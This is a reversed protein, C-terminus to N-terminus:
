KIERIKEALNPHGIKNIRDALDELASYIHQNFRHYAHYMSSKGLMEHDNKEAMEIKMKNRNEKNDRITKGM